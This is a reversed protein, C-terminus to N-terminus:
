LCENTAILDLLLIVIVLIGGTGNQGDRCLKGLVDVLERNVVRVLVDYSCLLMPLVELSCRTSKSARWGAPSV